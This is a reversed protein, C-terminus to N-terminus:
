NQIKISPDFDILYGELRSLPRTPYIPISHLRPFGLLLNQGAKAIFVVNERSFYLEFISEVRFFLGSMTSGPKRLEVVAWAQEM